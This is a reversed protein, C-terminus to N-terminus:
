GIVVCGNVDCGSDCPMLNALHLVALLGLWYIVTYCLWLSLVAKPVAGISPQCRSIVAFFLWKNKLLYCLWPVRDIVCGLLM